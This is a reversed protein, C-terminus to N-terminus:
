PTRSSGSGPSSASILGAPAAALATGRGRPAACVALAVLSGIFLHWPYALNLEGLRWDAPNHPTARTLPFWSTWELFVARQLLLVALLGAALAALASASTGRRTFLATVFVGILGAYMFVMSSLALGLLTEGSRKQWVICVCAFLGVAAGWGIVALRGVALYHRDDRGPRARRYVDNVFAASMAGLSANTGAPGAALLGAVMLGTLGAPMEHLIFQVFVQQSGRATDLPASPGASGMVDPRQYFVFLLLGIVLFLLVTPIGALVGSIVSWSAKAASRCTLMRQVLDHDAGHSAITLLSFGLVATLLSYVNSPDFGLRPADLDLGPRLLTLKSSGDPGATHLVDLLEAPGLPIRALLVAAALLAAGLYVAAQVVDTWIVSKIGGVITFVMCFLMVGLIAALMHPADLTGFVILSVPIAGIFVRSGSAFVRGILYAWAAGQRAGPGLRRELMEYPTTVCLRYYAPLFFAALVLAGVIGGLNTSLYSLDGRFSDEPVGLFTAASQTTALISIVVAWLPMQRAGVFYENTGRRKRNLLIGALALLAFYAALVAWDLPQM